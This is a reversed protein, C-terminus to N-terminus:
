RPPLYDAVIIWLGFGDAIKWVWVAGIAIDYRMRARRATKFIIRFKIVVFGAHSQCSVVELGYYRIEVPLDILPKGNVVAINQHHM